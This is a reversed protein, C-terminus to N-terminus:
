HCGAHTGAVGCGAIWDSDAADQDGTGPTTTGGLTAATHCIAPGGCSQTYAPLLAPAISLRDDELLAGVEGHGLLRITVPFDAFGEQTSHFGGRVSETLLHPALRTAHADHPAVSNYEGEAVSLHDTGFPEGVSSLGKFGGFKSSLPRAPMVGYGPRTIPQSSFQASATPYLTEALLVV